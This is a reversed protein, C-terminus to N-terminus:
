FWRSIHKGEEKKPKRANTHSEGLRILVTNRNIIPLILVTNKEEKEIKMKEIKLKENEHM